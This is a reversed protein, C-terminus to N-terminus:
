GIFEICELKDLCCTQGEIYGGASQVRANYLRAVIEPTTGSPSDWLEVRYEVNTISLFSGKYIRAM